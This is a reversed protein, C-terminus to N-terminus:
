LYDPTEVNQVLLSGVTFHEVLQRYLLEIVINRKFSLQKRNKYINKTNVM